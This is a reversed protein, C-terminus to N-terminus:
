FSRWQAQAGASPANMSLKSAIEAIRKRQAIWGIFEQEAPTSDVGLTNAWKDFSTMLQDALKRDNRFLRLYAQKTLDLLGLALFAEGRYETAPHFNPNIGLAYNYAGIAKRYDGSKRLAFGLENAAKYNQADLRLAEGQKKIAKAYEKQAKALFKERAKDSKAKAARAEHKLAKDRKKIGARLSKQSLQEPTLARNNSEFSSRSSGGGSSGAAFGDIPLSALCFGVLTSYLFIQFKSM